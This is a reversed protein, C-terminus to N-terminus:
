EIRDQIGIEIYKKEFADILAHSLLDAAGQDNEIDGIRDRVCKWSCFCDEWGGSIRPMRIAYCRKAIRLLCQQCHGTFWDEFYGEEENYDFLNTLFMRAGGYKASPTNLTLNQSILPNSPGHIWYLVRDTELNLQQSNQLIPLLLQKKRELSKGIEAKLFIRAADIELIAIGLSELGETMLRVAEDDSPLVIDIISEKETREALQELEEQTPLKNQYSSFYKELYNKVPIPKDAFPAIETIKDILYEEVRANEHEIATKRLILYTDYPQNGYIADIRGCATVVEESSDWQSLEDILEVFTVDKHISALYSLTPVNITIKLFLRTFLSIKDDDPYVVKWRELILKSAEDRSYAACLALFNSLLIEHKDTLEELPMIKLCRDLSDLDDNKISELAIAIVNFETSM